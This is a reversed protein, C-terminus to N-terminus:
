VCEENEGGDMEGEQDGGPMANMEREAILRTLPISLREMIDTRGLKEALEYAASYTSLDNDDDGRYGPMQGIEIARILCDLARQEDEANPIIGVKGRLVIGIDFQLKRELYPVTGKTRLLETLAESLYELAQDLNRRGCEIHGLLQLTKAIKIHEAAFHTTLIDLAKQADCEALESEGIEFYMDGREILTQVFPLSDDGYFRRAYRVSTMRLKNMEVQDHRIAALEALESLISLIVLRDKGQIHTRTLKLAKNLLLEANDTLGVRLEAESLTILSEIFAYNSEGVTKLLERVFKLALTRAEAHNDWHDLFHLLENTNSITRHDGPGFREASHERLLRLAWGEVEMTNSARANDRIDELISIRNLKQDDSEVAYNYARMYLKHAVPFRDRGHAVKGRILWAYLRPSLKNEALQSDATSQSSHLSGLSCQRAVRHLKRAVTLAAAWENKSELLYGHQALAYTYQRQAGQGNAEMIECARRLHPEAHWPDSKCLEQALQCRSAAVEPADPGYVHESLRIGSEGCTIVVDRQEAKKAMEAILDIHNLIRECFEKAKAETRKDAGSSFLSVIENLSYSAENPIKLQVAWKAISVEFPIALSSWHSRVLERTEQIISQASPVDGLSLFTTAATVACLLLEDYRKERATVVTAFAAEAIQLALIPQGQELFTKWAYPKGGNGDLVAALDPPELADFNEPLFNHPESHSETPGTPVGLYPLSPSWNPRPPISPSIPPPESPGTLESPLQAPSHDHPEPRLM